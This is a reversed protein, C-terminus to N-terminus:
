RAKSGQVHPISVQHMHYQAGCITHLRRVGRKGERCPAGAPTRTHHAATSAYRPTGGCASSGSHREILDEALRDGHQVLM